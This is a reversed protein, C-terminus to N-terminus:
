VMYPHSLLGECLLVTGDKYIISTYYWPCNEFPMNTKEFIDRLVDGPSLKSYLIVYDETEFADIITDKICTYFHILHDADIPMVAMDALCKRMHSQKDGIGDNFEPHEIVKSWFKAAIDAAEDITRQLLILRREMSSAM